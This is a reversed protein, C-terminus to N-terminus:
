NRFMFRKITMILILIIILQFYNHVIGDNIGVGLETSNFAEIIKIKPNISCFIALYIFPFILICKLFFIAYSFISYMFSSTLQEMKSRLSTFFDNMHDFFNKVNVQDNM